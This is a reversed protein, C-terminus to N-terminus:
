YEIEPHPQLFGGIKPKVIVDLLIRIMSNMHKESLGEVQNDLLTVSGELKKAEFKTNDENFGVVAELNLNGSFLFEEEIYLEIYAEASVKVGESGIILQPTEKLQVKFTGTSDRYQEFVSPPLITALCIDTPCSISAIESEFSYTPIIGINVLPNVIAVAGKLAGCLLTGMYKKFAGSAYDLFTNILWSLYSGEFKLDLQHFDISCSDIVAQPKDRKSTSLHLDVLMDFNVDASFEGDNGWTLPGFLKFQYSWKGDMKIHFGDASLTFIKGDTETDLNFNGKDLHAVKMGTFAYDVTAFFLPASGTIPELEEGVLIGDLYGMAKDVIWTMVNKPNVFYAEQDQHVIPGASASVLLCLFIIGKMITLPELKGLTQLHGPVGM